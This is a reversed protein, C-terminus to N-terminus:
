SFIDSLCYNCFGSPKYKQTYTINMNCHGILDPGGGYLLFVAIRRSAEAAPRRGSPGMPGMPGTGLPCEIPGAFGIKEGGHNRAFNNANGVPVKGSVVMYKAINSKVICGTFAHMNVNEESAVSWGFCVGSCVGSVYMPLLLVYVSCTYIRVSRFVPVYVPVYQVDPSVPVYM